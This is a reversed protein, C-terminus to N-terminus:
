FGKEMWVRAFFMRLTMSHLPSYHNVGAFDVCGASVIISAPQTSFKRFPGGNMQFYEARMFM